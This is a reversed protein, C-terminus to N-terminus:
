KLHKDFWAAARDIVDREHEPKAFIHGEHEYVVLETEVGLTKLAHWFEYSQPTPCEGDSDGVLILTPTKANKIYTLPASRAYVEPDDYVSKGFFPIMWQDIQNEGYYSSWNAIGAGAVAARFRDTQTVGWMTMYGGYSWGTLGLRKPDVPATKLVEDVGALIDKWDGYGFDKVNGQTFAEGNGFSGRPNPRFLFYGKAPLVMPYSHPSPWSSQVGDGPGGHVVVVMPYKKSAEFDKPYILWGQVDFGENEWHLSKAEGWAPKVGANKHTVQSWKGITGAWVEPPHEFSSRVTASATGEPTLALSTSWFGSTLLEPARYLSEIQGSVPDIRAISSEGDINEMDIIKGSATWAVLSASAKRKPTLNRAAGGQWPIVYVDGGVSDEDSMLGDIFAISKGDLSVAPRGIQLNPAYITRMEASSAKVAYLHAIYWNNDGNGKAATLVLSKSDPAWDYEYTYMDAPTIERLAGNGVDAIALRQEFFVDKIVGTEATEAVLPGAERTANETHLVAISQGDPSWKPTALLGKTSTVQRPKGGEAKMVYLQLQGKKAADSLFALQQSDPSWALDKENFHATSAGATVRQPTQSQEYEVVYLDQNRTRAGNKDIQTEVWAVKKGDPSIAVQQYTQVLFLAGFPNGAAQSRATKPAGVDAKRPEQGPAPGFCFAVGAFAALLKRFCNM